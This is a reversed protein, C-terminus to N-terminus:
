SIFLNHFLAMIFVAVASFFLLGLISTLLMLNGARGIDAPEAERDAFGIVPKSVPQGFYWADGGLELHLAGACAAETQASNPSKHSRRDRRWVKFANVGDCSPLILAAVIMLLAAIRSPIFNVIDDVRAAPRGFNAYKKNNYGVMSDMTNVAKYMLGGAPGLIFLYFLPAIIGDSTNEAVSEITAKIVKETDLRDTDRGVIQSLSERAGTLDEHNLSFYVRKGSSYLSRVALVQWCILIEVLWFLVPSILGALALIASSVVATIMVVLIVLERGAAREGREDKPFFARLRGELKEILWGIAKVCHPWSEPDGLLLDLIFGIEIVFVMRYGM